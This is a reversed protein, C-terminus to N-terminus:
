LEGKLETEDLVGHYVLQDIHRRYVRQGAIHYRLRKPNETVQIHCGNCMMCYIDFARAGMAKVSEPKRTFTLYRDPKGLPTILPM